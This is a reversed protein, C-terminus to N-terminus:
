AGPMREARAAAGDFHIAWRAGGGSLVLDLPSGGGDAGIPVTHPGAGALSLGAPLAHPALADGRAPLWRGGGWALFRYGRASWDLGIARDDLMAQDAALEIRAALRRAEAEDEGAARPRIALAIAGAATGMIALVVLLEILTFGEARAPM